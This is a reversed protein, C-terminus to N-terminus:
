PNLYVEIEGEAQKAALPGDQEKKHYSSIIYEKGAFPNVGPPLLVTCM